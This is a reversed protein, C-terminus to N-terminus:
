KREKQVWGVRDQAIGVNRRPSVGSCARHEEEGLRQPLRSHGCAIQLEAALDHDGAIEAAGPRKQTPM